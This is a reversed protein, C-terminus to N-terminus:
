SFNKISVLKSGDKQYYHLFDNNHFITKVYESTPLIEDINFKEFNFYINTKEKANEHYNVLHKFVDTGMTQYAIGGDSSWSYVRSSVKKFLKSTTNNSGHHPIDMYNLYVHENPFKLNLGDIIEKEPCRRHVVNAKNYTTLTSARGKATDKEIVKTLGSLLQECPSLITIKINEMEVNHGRKHSLIQFHKNKENKEWIKLISQASRKAFFTPYSMWMQKIKEPYQYVIPLIGSIHDNDCHTVIVLDNIIDNLQTTTKKPLALRFGDGILPFGTVSVDLLFNKPLFKEFGGVLPLTGEGMYICQTYYGSNLITFLKSQNFQSLDISSNNTIKIFNKWFIDAYCSNVYISLSSSEKCGKYGKISHELLIKFKYGSLIGDSLIFEGTIQGHGCLFFGIFFSYNSNFAISVFNGMLDKERIFACKGNVLDIAIKKYKELNGQNINIRAHIFSFFVDQYLYPALEDGMPDGLVM